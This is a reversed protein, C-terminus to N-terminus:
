GPRSRNYNCCIGQSPSPHFAIGKAHHWPYPDLRGPKHPFGNTNYLELYKQPPLGIMPTPNAMLENFVIDFRKPRYTTFGTTNVLLPNGACDTIEESLEIEYIVDDDLPVPLILKVLKFDPESVSVAIPNGIGMNVSYNAPDLLGIEDMTENFRLSLELSNEITVGLLQPPTIDPNESLVSNPSGPTGGKPSTSAIWNGGEGCFNYPDIKELSWGGSSKEPDNYWQNTYSVWSIMEMHEDYLILTTGANLLATTSLGPVAVVNGYGSLENIAAPPCLVLYGGSPIEAKPITRQTTGHQLTWGQLNINFASTNYLEIYEFEPLGVVPSPDAMLENFVVDFRVPEYWVFTGSFFNDMVNGELDQMNGVSLTYNEGSAFVGDFTLLVKEPNDPALVASQPFGIGKDV